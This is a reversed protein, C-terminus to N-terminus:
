CSMDKYLKVRGRVNMLEYFGGDTTRQGSLVTTKTVRVPLTCLAFHMVDGLSFAPFLDPYPSGKIGARYM